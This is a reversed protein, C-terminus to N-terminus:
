VCILRAIISKKHFLIRENGIVARYIMKLHTDTHVKKMGNLRWFISCYNIMLKNFWNVYIRAKTDNRSRHTGTQVISYVSKHCLCATLKRGARNKLRLSVPKRRFHPMIFSRAFPGSSTASFQSADPRWDVFETSSKRIASSLWM